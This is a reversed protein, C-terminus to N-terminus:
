ECTCTSSSVTLIWRHFLYKTLNIRNIRMQTILSNEAKILNEHLKLRKKFVRFSLTVCVKREESTQYENWANEWKKQLWKKFKRDISTNENFTTENIETCFNKFWFHKRESLMFNAFRRWRNKSQTLKRKIKNCHDIILTDYSEEQLRMRTKIQLYALYLKISQIQMEVDFFQDLMVRFVDNLM